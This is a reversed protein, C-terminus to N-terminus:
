SVEEFEQHPYQINTIYEESCSDCIYSYEFTDDSLDKTTGKNDWIIFPDNKIFDGGCSCSITKNYTKVEIKNIVVSM